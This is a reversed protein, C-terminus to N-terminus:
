ISPSSDPLSGRALGIRYGHVRLFNPPSLRLGKTRCLWSDKGAAAMLLLQRNEWSVSDLSDDPSLESDEALMITTEAPTLLRDLDSGDLDLIEFFVYSCILISSVISAARSLRSHHFFQLGPLM